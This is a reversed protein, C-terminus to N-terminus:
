ATGSLVATFGDVSLKIGTVLLLTYLLIYFWNESIRRHMTIGLYIGIPALVALSLSTKLNSADLLGLWAYPVLKIYNVVTFFIVTTGVFQTKHMKQPLLYMDVPPGGAHVSFSTFGSLAGYLRGVLPNASKAVSELCCFRRVLWNLTFVVAILGVLIKIHAESLYRFTLAGLAIGVIAAPILIRLNNRDYQGRFGWVAFLDMVCLIPLMIAAAQTPPIALSMLPVAAVGLGGGMGGKAIGMILVAPIAVLFFFPDTIV